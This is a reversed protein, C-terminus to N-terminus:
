GYVVVVFEDDKEWLIVVRIEQAVLALFRVEDWQESKQRRNKGACIVM